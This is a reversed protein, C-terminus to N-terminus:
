GFALRVEVGTDMRFAEAVEDLAFKLDAAGAIVPPEEAMGPRLAIGGLSLWILLALIARRPSGLRPM